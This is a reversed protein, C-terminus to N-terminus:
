VRAGAQARAQRRATGARLLVAPAPPTRSREASSAAHTKGRLFSPQPRAPGLPPTPAAVQRRSPPPALPTRSSKRGVHFSTACEDLTLLFGLSENRRRLLCSRSHFGRWRGSCARRPCPLFVIVPNLRGGPHETLSMGPLRGSSM